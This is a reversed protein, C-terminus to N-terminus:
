QRDAPPGIELSLLDGQEILFAQWASTPEGATALSEVIPSEAHARVNNSVELAGLGLFILAALNGVAVRHWSTNM